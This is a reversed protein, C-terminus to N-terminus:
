QAAGRLGSAVSRLNLVANRVELRAANLSTRATRAQAKAADFASRKNEADPVAQFMEIAKAEESAATELGTSAEDLAARVGSVDGGAQEVRDAITATREIREAIRVQAADFLQKRRKLALRIREALLARRQERVSQLEQQIEQRREVIEERAGEVVGPAAVALTPVTLLATLWVATTVWVVGSKKM